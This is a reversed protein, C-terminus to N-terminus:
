DSNPSRIYRFGVTLLLSLANVAGKVPLFTIGEAIASTTGLTLSLLPYVKSIAGGFRSSVTVKRGKQGALVDDVFVSLKEPDRVLEAAAQTGDPILAALGEKDERSKVYLQLSHLLERSAEVFRKDAQVLRTSFKEALIDSDLVYTPSHRAAIKLDFEATPGV